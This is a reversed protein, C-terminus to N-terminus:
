FSSILFFFSVELPIRRPLIQQHYPSLQTSSGRAVVDYARKSMQDGEISSTSSGRFLRVNRSRDNIVVPTIGAAQLQQPNATQYSTAPNPNFHGRSQDGSQAMRAATM